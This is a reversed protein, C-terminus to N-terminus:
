KQKLEIEMNRLDISSAKDITFDWYVSVFENFKPHSKFEKVGSFGLYKSYWVLNCNFQMRKWYQM